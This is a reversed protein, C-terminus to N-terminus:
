QRFYETLIKEAIETIASDNCEQYNDIHVFFQNCYEKLPLIQIGFRTKLPNSYTSMINEGVINYFHLVDGNFGSNVKESFVNSGFRDVLLRSKQDANLIFQNEM